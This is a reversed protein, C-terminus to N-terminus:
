VPDSQGFYYEINPIIYKRPFECGLIGESFPSNTADTTTARLRGHIPVRAEEVRKSMLKDLDHVRAFEEIKRRSHNHQDKARPYSLSSEDDFQESLTPSDLM